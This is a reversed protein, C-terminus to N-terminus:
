IQPLEVKRWKRKEIGLLGIYSGGLWRLPTCRHDPNNIQHSQDQISWSKSVIREEILLSFYGCLLDIALIM